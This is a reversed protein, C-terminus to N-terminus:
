SYLIANSLSVDVGNVFSSMLELFEIGNRLFFFCINVIEDKLQELTTGILSKFYSPVHEEEIYIKRINIVRM